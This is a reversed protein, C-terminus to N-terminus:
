QDHFGDVCDGAFGVDRLFDGAGAADGQVPDQVAQADAEQCDAQHDDDHVLVAFAVVVKCRSMSLESQGGEDDGAADGREADEGVVGLPQVGPDSRDEDFDNM